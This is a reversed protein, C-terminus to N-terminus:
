RDDECSKRRHSYRLINRGSQKCAEIVARSLKELLSDGPPRQSREAVLPTVRHVGLETLREILEKARDPKPLAIGLNVVVAPERSVFSVQSVECQCANRKIQTIVGRSQHGNGDFLELEEGVQVRMVRVAHQAEADPLDIPGGQAPLKPVFYRRTM